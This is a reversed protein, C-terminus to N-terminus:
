VATEPAEFPQDPSNDDRIPALGLDPALPNPQIVGRRWERTM